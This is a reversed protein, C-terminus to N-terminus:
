IAFRAKLEKVVDGRESPSLVHDYVRVHAMKGLWAYYTPGSAVGAGLVYTGTVSATVDLTQTTNYALETGNLEVQVRYGSHRVNYVLWQNLPTTPNFSFRTASWMNEYINGDSFPTHSSPTNQSFNAWAGVNPGAPPPDADARVVLFAEVSGRDQVFQQRYLRNESFTGFSLVPYGNLANNWDIVPGGGATYEYFHNGSGSFDLWVAATGSLSGSFASGSDLLLIPSLSPYTGEGVAWTGAWAGGAALPVTGAGMQEIEVGGFTGSSTGYSSFDDHASYDRDVAYWTGSFGDVANFETGAYEQFVTGAGYNWRDEGVFYSDSHQGYWTGEFGIGLQDLSSTGKDQGLTGTTYEWGEWAQIGESSPSAYWTGAFNQGGYPFPNNVAYYDIAYDSFPEWGDPPPGAEGAYALYPLDFWTFNVNVTM